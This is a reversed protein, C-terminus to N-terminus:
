QLEKPQLANLVEIWVKDQQPLQTLQEQLWIEFNEQLLRQQILENLQAPILEEVRVVIQWNDIPVPPQVEGVPSTHLLQALSPHLTGFEVPGILGGTRSEPGQSYERALDTFSQEGEQLRFFIENAIGRDEVRILSYIVQDLQNKRQLFYSKLKHGWTARKFKEVRLAKTAILEIQVQNLGYSSQWLHKETESSLNWHQYFQQCQAAVETQTCTIPSIVRDIIRECLLQPILQCSTILPALEEDTLIRDGTQLATTM